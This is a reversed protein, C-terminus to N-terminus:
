PRASRPGGVAARQGAGDRERDRAGGEVAAGERQAQVGRRGRRGEREGRGVGGEGDAPDGEAAPDDIERATAASPLTWLVRVRVSTPAESPPRSVTAWPVPVTLKPAPPRTPLKEAWTEAFELLMPRAVLAVTPTSTSVAAPFIATFTLPKSRM